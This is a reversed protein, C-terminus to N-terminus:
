GNTPQAAQLRALIAASDEAVIQAAEALDAAPISWRALPEAPHPVATPVIHGDATKVYVVAPKPLAAYDGGMALFGHIVGGLQSELAAARNGLADFIAAYDGHWVAMAGNIENLLISPIAASKNLADRAAVAASLQQDTLM